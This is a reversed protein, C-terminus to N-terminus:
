RDGTLRAQWEAANEAAEFAFKTNPFTFDRFRLALVRDDAEIGSIEDPSILRTVLVDGQAAVLGIRGTGKELIIAARRDKALIGDGPEFALYDQRLRVAADDLSEVQSPEWGGLWANLGILAAISLASVLIIILSIM